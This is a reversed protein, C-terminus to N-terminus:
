TPTTTGCHWLCHYRCKHASWRAMQGRPQRHRGPHRARRCNKQGGGSGPWHGKSKTTVYPEFARKLLIHDPSVPAVPGARTLRVRRAKSQQWIPACFLRLGAATGDETARSETADQANQLLNHVVQRLQQPDDACWIPPCHADLELVVKALRNLQCRRRRSMYSCIVDQWWRM